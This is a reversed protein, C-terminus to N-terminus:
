IGESLESNIDRMPQKESSSNSLTIYLFALNAGSQLAAMKQLTSAIDRLLAEDATQYAQGVYTELLQLHGLFHLFVTNNDCNFSISRSGSQTVLSQVFASLKNDDTQLDPERIEGQDQRYTERIWSMLKDVSLEKKLNVLASVVQNTKFYLAAIDQFLKAQDVTPPFAFDPFTEKLFKTDVYARKLFYYAPRNHSHLVRVSYLFGVRQGDKILRIGLDLDEAYKTKFGYKCFVDRRILAAIDNIQSNSRLGINSSCSEDWALIRDTNLNLTKYHNWLSLQYFLDCDSRPYEACSVAALNNQELTQAMEWLWRDTLPLADQVMFLVYHGTAHEAGKNRSFAHNFSDPPIEIVIACEDKAAQVTGDTSGSDVIIVEFKRVGKQAKLKRLLHEFNSGGNKTPIVVSIKKKILPLKEEHGETAAVPLSLHTLNLQSSDGSKNAWLPQRTAIGYLHKLFHKLRSELSLLRNRLLYYHQLARWGNSSQIQGLLEELKQIVRERRDSLLQLEQAAQTKEALQSAFERAARDKQDVLIQITRDREALQSAFERAARDKQDVLIQITRDREALQSAFERAAQDKEVLQSAFERAAQDRQDVLIQITRDREASQSAFERTAQDKQDALVQIAREKEAVLLRLQELKVENAAQQTLREGLKFFFDRIRSTEEDSARFLKNLGVPQEPGVGLLGLGHEHLFEFHPYKAKIEDWFRWVGYDRERVNTDHFLVIGRPSMKRLWSEFDHKVAEYTHYGDIHLLDIVGDSFYPIAENFTCQLLQSFSGYLPDHYARLDDLVESGYFGGQEDGRWTDVAFCHTNLNLEQVAQCFSCYSDGRYTGLEVLVGPRLADILFMAFPIHQRWASSPTLRRPAACFFPIEM